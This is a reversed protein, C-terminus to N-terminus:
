LLQHFTDTPGNGGQVGTMLLKWAAQLFQPIRKKGIMDILNRFFLLKFFLMGKIILTFQFSLVTHICKQSHGQVRNQIVGVGSGIVKVGRGIVKVAYMGIPSYHKNGVYLFTLDAKKLEVNHRIKIQKLDYATVLTIRVQFMVSLTFLVIEDAWTTPDLM